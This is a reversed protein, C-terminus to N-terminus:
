NKSGEGKLFPIMICVGIAMFLLAFLADPLSDPLRNTSSRIVDNQILSVVGNVKIFHEVIVEETKFPWLAFLSGGILGTLFAMTGDHAREFVWKVLKVFLLLGLGMGLAMITLFLFHDLILSSMGSLAGLVVFYQGMLILVLSGSIGPLIMASIAVAGALAAFAYEGPTYQGIFRFRNATNANEVLVSQQEQYEVRYRESSRREKDVPDVSVSLSWALVVGCFLPVLHCWKWKKFLRFPVFVSVTILGFFISYTAVFQTEFLYGMLSSLSIIALAMGLLLRLLFPLDRQRCMEFFQTRKVRDSPARLFAIFSGFFAKGAEGTFGNLITIVREYFGFILLFTGGSVGPIINAVGIAYGAFFEKIEKLMMEGKNQGVM